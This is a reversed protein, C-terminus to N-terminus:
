SNLTHGNYKNKLGKLVLKVFDDCVCVCEFLGDVFQRSITQTHKIM